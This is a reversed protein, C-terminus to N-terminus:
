RAAVPLWIRYRSDEAWTNGASAFDCLRMFLEEAWGRMAAAALGLASGVVAGVFVAAVAVFSRISMAISEKIM